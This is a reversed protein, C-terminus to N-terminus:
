LIRITVIFLELFGLDGCNLQNVIVGNDFAISFRPSHSSIYGQAGNYWSISEIKLGKFKSDM